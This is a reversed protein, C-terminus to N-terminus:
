RCFTKFRVTTVQEVAVMGTRAVMPKDIEVFLSLSTM